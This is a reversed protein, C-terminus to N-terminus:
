YTYGERNTMNNKWDKRERRLAQRQAYELRSNYFDNEKKKDRNRLASIAATGAGVLLAGGKAGSKMTMGKKFAGRIAGATMGVGAGIAADRAIGMNISGNSRKKEALIDSDKMAKLTDTEDWKTYTKQRFRIM